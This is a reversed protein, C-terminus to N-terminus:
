TATISYCFLYLVTQTKIYRSSVAIMEALENHGHERATVAVNKYYESRCAFVDLLIGLKILARFFHEDGGKAMEDCWYMLMLMDVAGGKFRKYTRTDEV